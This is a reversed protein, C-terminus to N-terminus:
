KSMEKLIKVMNKQQEKKLANFMSKIVGLIDFQDLEYMGNECIMRCQARKDPKSDIVMTKHKIFHTSM